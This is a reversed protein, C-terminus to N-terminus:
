RKEILIRLRMLLDHLYSSSGRGFVKSRRCGSSASGRTPSATGSFLIGGTPEITPKSTPQIVLNRYLDFMESMRDSQGETFRYLCCDYSFDMFNHIPDVGDLPCTDRGIECKESARAEPPTDVVFDGDADSGQCGGKFTHYLGLWHGVEHILTDGQYNDVDPLSKYNLRVNDDQMNNKCDWPFSSIGLATRFEGTFVNLTKCSGRRAERHLKDSTISMDVSSDDTYRIIEKLNFRFATGYRRGYTFGECAPYMPIDGAFGGNLIDIQKNITADSLEGTGDSKKIVHFYVDIVPLSGRIRVLNEDGMKEQYLKLNSEIEREIELSLQEVSCKKMSINERSEDVNDLHRDLHNHHSQHCQSIPFLTLFSTLLHIASLYKTM